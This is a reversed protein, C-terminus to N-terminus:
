SSPPEPYDTFACALPLFITESRQGQLAPTAVKDLFVTNSLLLAKVGVRSPNVGSLGAVRLPLPVTISLPHPHLKNPESRTNM